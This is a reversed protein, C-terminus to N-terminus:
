ELLLYFQSRRLRRISLGLAVFNPFTSASVNKFLNRNPKKRNHRTETLVSFHVEPRSIETWSQGDEFIIRFFFKLLNKLSFNKVCKLTRGSQQQQQQQEIAFASVFISQKKIRTLLSAFSSSLWDQYCLATLLAACM